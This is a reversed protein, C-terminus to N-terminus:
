LKIRIREEGPMRWLVGVPLTSFTGADALCNIVIIDKLYLNNIHTSGNIVTTINSGVIFSNTHYSKNLRGGVIGSFGMNGYDICNECGGVIVSYCANDGRNPHFLVSLGGSNTFGCFYVQDGVSLNHSTSPTTFIQTTSNGSANCVILSPITPSYRMLRGGSMSSTLVVPTNTEMDYLYFCCPSPLGGTLPICSVCYRGRSASALGCGGSNGYFYVKDNVNLNHNTSTTIIDTTANGSVSSSVLSTIGSDVKYLTASTLNTTFNVCARTPMCLMKFSNPSVIESVLYTGGSAGCIQGFNSGIMVSSRADIGCNWNQTGGVMVTYCSNLACNRNTQGGFLVSYCSSAVFCGFIVSGESYKEFMSGLFNTSNTSSSSDANFSTYYPTNEIKLSGGSTYFNVGFLSSGIGNYSGINFSYCTHSGLDGGVSFDSTTSIGGGAMAVSHPAMTVGTTLFSAERANFSVSGCNNGAIIRDLGGHIVNFSSESDAGGTCIYNEFGGLITSGRKITCGVVNNFYGGSIVNCGRSIDNGYCANNCILNSMGGGIVSGMDYGFGLNSNVYMTNDKGGNINNYDSGCLFCATRIDNTQGGSIVTGKTPLCIINCCGGLVTSSDIPGCDVRHLVGGLSNSNTANLISSSLVVNDQGLVTTTTPINCRCVTTSNVSKIIESPMPPTIKSEEIYDLMACITGRVDSPSVMENLNDPITSDILDSVEGKSLAAM